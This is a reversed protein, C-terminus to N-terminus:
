FSKYLMVSFACVKLFIEDIDDNTMLAVLLCLGLSNTVSFTCTYQLYLCQINRAHM